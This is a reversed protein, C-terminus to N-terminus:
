FNKRTLDVSQTFCAVTQHRQRRAPRRFVDDIRAPRCSPVSDLRERKRAPFAPGNGRLAIQSEIDRIGIRGSDLLDMQHREVEDALDNFLLYEGVGGGPRFLDLRKQREFLTPAPFGAEHDPEGPPYNRKDHNPGTWIRELVRIELGEGPLFRKVWSRDPWLEKKM